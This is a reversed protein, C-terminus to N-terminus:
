LSLSIIEWHDDTNTRLNTFYMPLFRHPSNQNAKDTMYLRIIFEHQVCTLVMKESLKSKVLFTDPTGAWEM